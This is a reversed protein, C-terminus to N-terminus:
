NASRNELCEDVVNAIAIAVKSKFLVDQKLENSVKEFLGQQNSIITRAVKHSFAERLGNKFEDARIVDEFANGVISKLEQSHSSIVEGILKLLPSHYGTLNDTIAKQISQQTTQLIEKELSVPLFKKDIREAAQVTTESIQDIFEKNTRKIDSLLEHLKDITQREKEIM